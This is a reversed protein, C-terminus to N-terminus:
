RQGFVEIGPVETAVGTIPIVTPSGVEKLTRDAAVKLVHIGNAAPAATPRQLARVVYLFSESSADFTDRM